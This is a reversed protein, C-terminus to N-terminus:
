KRRISRITYVFFNFFGFFYWRRILLGFFFINLIYFFIFLVFFYNLFRSRLWRFLGRPIFWSWGHILVFRCRWDVLIFGFEFDFVGISTFLGLFWCWLNWSNIYFIWFCHWFRFVRLFLVTIGLIIGLFFVFRRIRSRWGIWYKMGSLSKPTFKHCRLIKLYRLFESRKQTFRRRPYVHFIPLIYHIAFIKEKATEYNPM